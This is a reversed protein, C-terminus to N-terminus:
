KANNEKVATRFRKMDSKGISVVDQGLRVLVTRGFMGTADVIDKEKIGAQTLVPLFSLLAKDFAANSADRLKGKTVAIKDRIKTSKSLHSKIARQAATILKQTDPKVVGKVPVNLLLKNKNLTTATLRKRELIKFARYTLHKFDNSKEASAKFNVQKVKASYVYVALTKHPRAGEEVVTDKDIRKQLREFANIQILGDKGLFPNAASAEAKM